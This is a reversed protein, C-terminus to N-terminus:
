LVRGGRELILEVQEAPVHGKRGDIEVLVRGAPAKPEGIKNLRERIEKEKQSVMSEAIESAQEQTINDFGYHKYIKSLTDEYNKELETFLKMQEIIERRGEKTNLLSPLRAEFQQIDFNTVRSGFIDKAGTIFDKVTKLFRQASKPVLGLMQPLTRFNGYKNVMFRSIDPIEDSLKDLINLHDEQIKLGKNKKQAAAFIPANEKRLASKYQHMEKPTKDTPLKVDPYNFKEGKIEKPKFIRNDNEITQENENKEILNEFNEPSKQVEEGFLRKIDMGRLNADLGAKLLETRGGTPAARWANAFKEGFINKVTEYNAEDAAYEGKLKDAQLQRQLKNQYAQNAFQRFGETAGIGLNQGFQAGFRPKANEEIIQVM